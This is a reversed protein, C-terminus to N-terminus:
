KQQTELSEGTDEFCILPVSKILSSDLCEFKQSIDPLYYFPNTMLKLQELTLSCLLHVLPAVILCGGFSVTKCKVPTLTVVPLM